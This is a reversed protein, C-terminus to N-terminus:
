ETGKWIHKLVREFPGAISEAASAKYLLPATEKRRARGFRRRGVRHVLLKDDELEVTMTSPTLTISNALLVRATQSRLGTHFTVFEPDIDMTITQLALKFSASFIHRILMLFYVPLLFIGYALSFPPQGKEALFFDRSFLAIGLCFFSGLLLSLPELRWSLLLWLSMLVLTTAAVRSVKQHVNKM